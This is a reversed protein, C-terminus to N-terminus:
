PSVTLSFKTEKCAVFAYTSTSIYSKSMRIHPSYNAGRRSRKVLPSLDVSIRRILAQIPEQHKPSFIFIKLFEQMGTHTTYLISNTHFKGDM